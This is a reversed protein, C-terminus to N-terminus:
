KLKELYTKMHVFISNIVKFIDFNDDQPSYRIFVCGLIDEIHNQRITDNEKNAKHFNEDCEIALKYDFFYLDIKYKDVIYQCQTNENKFVKIINCITTSEICPHIMYNTEYGIQRAFEIVYVSRTKSLIKKFGLFTLFLVNQSGGKTNAKICIKELENFNAISNRIKKINLIIGLKNAHFLTDNQHIFIIDEFGNKKLNLCLTSQDM